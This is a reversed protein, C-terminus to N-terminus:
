LTSTKRSPTDPPVLSMVMLYGIRLNAIAKSGSISAAQEFDSCCGDASVAATVASVTPLALWDVGAEPVMANAIVDDANAGLPDTGLCYVHSPSCVDGGSSHDPAGLPVFLRASM